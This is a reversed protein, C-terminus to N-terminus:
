PEKLVLLVSAELLGTSAPVPIIAQGSPLGAPAVPVIGPVATNSSKITWSPVALLWPAHEVAHLFQVLKEPAGVAILKIEAEVFSGPVREQPPVTTEDVVETITPIQLAVVADTALGELTSVVVGVEARTVILDDLRQIREQSNRLENLKALEDFRAEKGRPSGSRRGASNVLLEAVEEAEGIECLTSLREASVGIVLVRRGVRVLALS